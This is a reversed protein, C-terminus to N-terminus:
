KYLVAAAAASGAVSTESVNSPLSNLVGKASIYGGSNQTAIMDTTYSPVTLTNGSNGGVGEAGENIPANDTAM